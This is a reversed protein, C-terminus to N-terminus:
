DEEPTWIHPHILGLHQYHRLHMMEPHNHQTIPLVRTSMQCLALSDPGIGCNCVHVGSSSQRIDPKEAGLLHVIFHLNADSLVGVVPRELGDASVGGLEANM